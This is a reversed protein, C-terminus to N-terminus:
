EDARVWIMSTTPAIQTEFLQRSTVPDELGDLDAEAGSVVLRWESGDTVVSSLDATQDNESLNVLVLMQQEISYGLLEENAPLVWRYYDEPPATDLRLVEGHSSSRLMILSQWFSFMGKFDSGADNDEAEQGVTEWVFRNALRLNYTDRKGHFALPGSSTTRITEELPASGKSRMIESGGHLVIPGLSTFLLAAAIRYRAEDVGLLGNWDSTAFRDALAWNDHIDLYNIGRVPNGEDPFGNTLALVVADRQSSNGGAYGRDREKSVPNSPSGKFANRAADQFYTIPADEKYWSWDPNSAVDTDSPAIWPEGYIIIDNGVARRLAKLTQEDIQGALDIRFGDIGFEEILHLCQDIIWRQVMPRDESKVENGFPGIHNVEDDTRYYYPKDIGNFTFTYDRGDMNEGTHNPVLDVLVAIGRDHFAQVMNRFQEREAGIETTRTRFRSEIAFAHTTRYGWQYNERAIDQSVMRPDDGFATQWEDDPYHLFEQVPMLHVANIGLNVLYDIGIAEGRSNKLGSLGMAEITGKLDDSVPLSDTFDQVHVEYSVLDKMAPRGAILPTAPVTPQMIRAPGFSDVSVRAYPDTVRTGTTEFFRDGPDNSGYIAFDYFMGTLDEEVNVEWVGDSDPVMGISRHESEPADLDQFIFLVVRDARPAFLRVATTGDVSDVTAGLTKTSYLTRFWPDRRVLSRLESGRISLYYVRRIDLEGSPVVLVETASNPVVAELTIEDGSSDVLKFDSKAVPVDPVGEVTAWIARPSRIEARLRPRVVGPLFVLNGAVINTATAPPDLWLGDDVLFKFGSGPAISAYGPNEVRLFWAGDGSEELQWDSDEMDTSWGRFQGTVVVRDPRVDYVSEDFHFRVDNEFVEYGEANSQGLASAATGSMICLSLLFAVPSRSRGNAVHRIYQNPRRNDKPQM